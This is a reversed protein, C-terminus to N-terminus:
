LELSQDCLFAADERSHTVLLLTRDVAYEAVLRRMEQKTDVDLASFPEDLLLIKKEACLTRALAVRQKMGGSLASPRNNCDDGLGVKELYAMAKRRAQEKPYDPCIVAVNDLVSLNEFLRPEQFMYAIEDPAYGDVHGKCRELGAIIRLLTTKGRGSEGLIALHAKDPVTLSFDSFVCKPGFNKEIHELRIM